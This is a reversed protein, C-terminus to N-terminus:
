EDRYKDANLLYTQLLNIHEQNIIEDGHTRWYELSEIMEEVLDYESTLEKM